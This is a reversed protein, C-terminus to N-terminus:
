RLALNVLFAILGVMGGLWYGLYVILDLERQTVTRVIEEMRATSFGRVKQEVTEQIQLQEVVQPVQQQVGQWAADAVAERLTTSADPGLWAAPRGVPRDLIRRAIQRVARSVRAQSRPAALADGLLASVQKPPLIGIVDGWTRQEAAELARDLTRGIVARTSPDRAVRLLWDGLTRALAERREPHLRRIREGLPQRLFRVVADNVARTVHAKMAPDTVAEAMRDFGEREFGDVLREITRDTVVLKAVLREHILLERVSHDFADRLAEEVLHRADPDALLAGLRELAVPLYDTIAHELTGTLGPPLLDLLPREERAMRELQEHVFRRLVSELEDGDALQGVWGDVARRVAARREETLTTGIPRGDLDARLRVLWRTALSEFESSTAYSAVHGALRPALAAVGDEVARVLDPSLQERLPGRERELLGDLLRDLAGRFAERVAPASLRAALDERTLLREAVTKGISKALRDKNKPIAGQLRFPGIGTPEYPHFLMWIAVANTIGGSIAGVGITIAGTVLTQQDM